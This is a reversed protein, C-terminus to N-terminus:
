PRKDCFVNLPGAIVNHTEFKDIDPLHEPPSELLNTSGVNPKLCDLFLGDTPQGRSMSWSDTKLKQLLFNRSGFRGM